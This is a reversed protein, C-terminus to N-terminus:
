KEPPRLIGYRQVVGDQGTVVWVKAGVQGRLGSGVARLRLPDDGERDLYPGEGDARLVGVEPRDGDVSLIEYDAVDLTPGPYQGTSLTGTVRVRAGSLRAVEEALRGDVTVTDTGEVVTRTFPTNGVQRVTGVATDPPAAGPSGDDPPSSSGCGPLLAGALVFAAGAAAARWGGRRRLVREIPEM